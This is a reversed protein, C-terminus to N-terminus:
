RHIRWRNLPWYTHTVVGQIYSEPVAYPNHAPAGVQWVRSDASNVSFDGLVFYEDEGLLAPRDVTGWPEPMYWDPVAPLYEIGELSEPPTLRVGDVWVFGDQIHITEGPLGVLRKVYLVNPESPLKFVALDWRRPMLFKTVIISDGSHVTKDVDAGESVHFKECIMLSEDPWRNRDDIPSRFSSQGCEPCTGKWHRGLLTPAMANKPVVFTEFLFPRVVFFLVVLMTVSALLTPLWAQLGRLPRIRFFACIVACPVIISVALGILVEQVLPLVPVFRKLLVTAAIELPAVIATALLVRRTTVGPVKAWRLGM